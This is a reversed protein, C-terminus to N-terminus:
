NRQPDSSGVDFKIRSQQEGQCDTLKAKPPHPKSLATNLIDELTECDVLGLRRLATLEVIKGAFEKVPLYENIVKLVRAYDAEEPDVVSDPEVYHLEEEDWVKGDDPNQGESYTTPRFFIRAHKRILRCDGSLWVLVSGGQLSSRANTIILTRSSRQSLVSRFLMATDAPIEGEGIMDIQLQRPKRALAAELRAVREIYYANGYGLLKLEFRRLGPRTKTKM